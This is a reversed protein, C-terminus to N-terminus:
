LLGARILKHPCSVKANNELIIKESYITCRNCVAAPELEVPLVSQPDGVYRRRVVAVICTASLHISVSTVIFARDDDFNVTLEAVSRVNRTIIHWMKFFISLPAMLRSLLVNVNRNHAAFTIAGKQSTPRTATVLTKFQSAKQM